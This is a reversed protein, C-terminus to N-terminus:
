RVCRVNETNTKNSHDTHANAFIVLWAELTSRTFSSTSSWYHLSATNLFASKIAPNVKSYDVISLLENKNPLRWGRGNLSLAECYEIAGQWTAYKISGGNDSYDDQWELTTASDSVVGGSRSMDAWVLSSLAIVVLFIKKM